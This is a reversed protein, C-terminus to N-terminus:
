ILRAFNNDVVMKAFQVPQLVTGNQKAIQQNNTWMTRIHDDVADELQLQERVTKKWDDGGNWVKGVIERIGDHKERSLEGICDLVYNELVILLPRGKYRDPEAAASPLPDAQRGFIRSFFTM